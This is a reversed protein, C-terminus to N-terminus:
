CTPVQLTFLHRGMEGLGPPQPDTFPFTELAHDTVLTRSIRFYFSKGRYGARRQHKYVVPHREAKGQTCPLPLVKSSVCDQVVRTSLPGAHGKTSESSERQPEPREASQLKGQSLLWSPEAAHESSAANAGTVLHPM